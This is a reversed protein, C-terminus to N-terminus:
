TRKCKVNKLQVVLDSLLRHFLCFLGGLLVCGPSLRSVGTEASPWFGADTEGAMRRGQSEGALVSSHTAM